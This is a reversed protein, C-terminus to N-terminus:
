DGRRRKKTEKTDAAKRSPAPDKSGSNAAWICLAVMNATWKGRLPFGAEAESAAAAAAAVSASPSASAANLEKAKAACADALAIAEQVTYDRSGCVSLLAEDSMFASTHPALASLVASATAPGVGKLPVSLSTLAGKLDGSALKKLAAGSAEAVAKDSLEDVYRQLGPRFKGKLLKWQMVRSLESAVVHPPTRASVAAPFDTHIWADLPSLDAPKRTRAIALTYGKRAASFDIASSTLSLRLPSSTSRSSDGM